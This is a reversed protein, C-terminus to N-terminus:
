GDQRGEVGGDSSGDDVWARDWQERITAPAETIPKSPHPHDKHEYLTPEAWVLRHWNDGPLLDMVRLASPLDLEITVLRATATPQGLLVVQDIKWPAGGVLLAALEDFEVKARRLHEDLRSMTEISDRALHEWYSPDAM